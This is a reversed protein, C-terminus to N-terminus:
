IAVWSAVPPAGVCYVSSWARNVDDRRQREYATAGFSKARGKAAFQQRQGAFAARKAAASKAPTTRKSM